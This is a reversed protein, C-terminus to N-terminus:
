EMRPKYDTLPYLHTRGEDDKDAFWVQDRRLIKTDLLLPNHSTFALQANNRNAASSFFLQLLAIVM